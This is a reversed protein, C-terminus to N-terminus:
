GKTGPPSAKTGASAGDDGESKADENTLRRVIGDGQQYENFGDAAKRGVVRLWGGAGSRLFARELFARYDDVRFFEQIWNHLRRCRVPLRM